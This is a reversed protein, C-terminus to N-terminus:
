SVRHTSAPVPAVGCVTINERAGPLRCIWGQEWGDRVRGSVQVFPMLLDAMQETTLLNGGVKAVEELFIEVLHLQLGLPLTAPDERRVFTEACLSTLRALSADDSADDADDGGGGTDDTPLLLSLTQRLVRRVLQFLCPDPIDALPIHLLSLTQRLVRRM